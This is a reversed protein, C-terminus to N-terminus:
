MAIIASCKFQNELNPIISSQEGPTKAPLETSLNREEEWHLAM